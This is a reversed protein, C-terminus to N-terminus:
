QGTPEIGLLEIKFLLTAGGPITRKGLAGYGLSAPIALEVTDGIGVLPLVQQWGPILRGLPYLAPEGRDYSSDFVTGDIFSGQYHIRIRDEVTPHAGKNDGAVLRWRLGGPLVRWGQAPTRSALALMQRNHWAADQSREPAPPADQALAGSAFALLALALFKVHM